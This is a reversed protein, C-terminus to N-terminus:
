PSRLARACQVPRARRNSVANFVEVAARQLIKDELAAIGLPRLGDKKPIFRRRSPLARYAGRHLRGHLETLRSDLNKEYERWTLGDVGAAADRKLRSFASQLLGLDLHAASCHVTGEETTESARTCTGAGSVCKGPETGPAHASAIVHRCINGEANGVADAGPVITIERSLPQGAREGVSAEGFDERVEACPEPGFHSALDEDDHVRV